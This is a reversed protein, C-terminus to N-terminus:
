YSGVNRREERSRIPLQQYYLQRNAARVQQHHYPGVLAPLCWILQTQLYISHLVQTKVGVEAPYTPVQVMETLMESPLTEAPFENVRFMMPFQGGINEFGRAEQFTITPVLEYKKMRKQYRQLLGLKSMKSRYRQQQVIMTLHNQYVQSFSQSRLLLSNFDLKQRLDQLMFLQQPSRLFRYKKICRNHLLGQLLQQQKILNLMEAMM